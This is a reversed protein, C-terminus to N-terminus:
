FNKRLRSPNDSALTTDIVLFSYPKAICKKYIYIFYQFDIVEDLFILIKWKNHPNYEEINKYIDDMDNSYEIFAKSDKLHKVDISEWKNFLFLYKAEFPDKAYLYIQDIDSQRSILNFLSSTKGSVSRETILLQYPHDAIQPWNPNHEKINEEKVDDFNIIKLIMKNYQWM